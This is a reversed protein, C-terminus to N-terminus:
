PLPRALLARCNELQGPWFLRRNSDGNGGNNNIMCVRALSAKWGETSPQKNTQATRDLFPPKNTPQNAPFSLGSQWMEASHLMFKIIAGEGNERLGHHHFTECPFATTTCVNKKKLTAWVLEGLNSNNRVTNTRPYLKPTSKTHIRPNRTSCM